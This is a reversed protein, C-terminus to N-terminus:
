DAFCVELQFTFLVFQVSPWHPSDIYWRMELQAQCRRDTVYLTHFAIVVAFNFSNSTLIKERQYVRHAPSDRRPALVFLVKCNWDTVTCWSQALFFIIFFFFFRTKGCLSLDDSYWPFMVRLNSPSITPLSLLKSSSSEVNMLSAEETSKQPPESVWGRNNNANCKRAWRAGEQQGMHFCSLSSTNQCAAEQLTM